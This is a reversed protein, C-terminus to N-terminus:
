KTTYKCVTGLDIDFQDTSKFRNAHELFSYYTMDKLQIPEDAKRSRCFWCHKELHFNYGLCGLDPLNSVIMHYSGLCIEQMLM